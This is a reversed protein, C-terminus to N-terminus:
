APMLVAHGRQRASDHLARDFTVLTAGSGAAFALIFCDGVAKPAAQRAFPETLRRFQSGLNRPEPYYAVRPDGRWRDYIAWAEGLTLVHEGM